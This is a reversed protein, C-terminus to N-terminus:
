YDYTIAKCDNLMAKEGTSIVLTNNQIEAFSFGRKQWDKLITETIKEKGTTGKFSIGCFKRGEPLTIECNSSLVCCDLMELDKINFIEDFSNEFDTMNKEIYLFGREPNQNPHNGAIDIINNIEVISFHKTNRKAM